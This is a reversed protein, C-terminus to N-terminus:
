LQTRVISSLIQSNQLKVNKFNRTVYDNNNPIRLIITAEPCCM